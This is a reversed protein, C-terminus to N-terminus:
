PKLTRGADQQDPPADRHRHHPDLSPAEQLYSQARQAVTNAADSVM